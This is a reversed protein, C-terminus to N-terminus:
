REDAATTTPLWDSDPWAGRWPGSQARDEAVQAAISRQTQVFVTAGETSFTEGNRQAVRESVPQHDRLADLADAIEEPAAGTAAMELAIRSPDRERDVQRLRALLAVSVLQLTPHPSRRWFNILSGPSSANLRLEPHFAVMYFAPNAHRAQYRARAAVYVANFAQADLDQLGPCLLLAVEPNGPTATAELADLAGDLRPAADSAEEAWVVRRWLRGEQRCRRAFPCIDWQEVLERLYRDSHTLALTLARGAAADTAECAPATTTGRGHSM